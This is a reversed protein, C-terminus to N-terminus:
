RTYHWQLLGLVILSVVQVTMVKLLTARFRRRAEDPSTPTTM